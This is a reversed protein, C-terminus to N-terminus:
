IPYRRLYLIIYNYKRFYKPLVKSLIMSEYSPLVLVVTNANVKSPRSASEYSGKLFLRRPTLFGSARGGLIAFSSSPMPPMILLLTGFTRISRRLSPAHARVFTRKQSEPFIRMCIKYPVSTITLQKNSKATSKKKV